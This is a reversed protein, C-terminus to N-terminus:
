SGNEYVRESVTRNASVISIKAQFCVCLKETYHQLRKGFHVKKPAVESSM